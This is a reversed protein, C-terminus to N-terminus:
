WMRWGGRGLRGLTCNPSKLQDSSSSYSYQLRFSSPLRIFHPLSVELWGVPAQDFRAPVNVIPSPTLYSSIPTGLYPHSQERFTQCFIRVYVFSNRRTVSEVSFRTLILSKRQEVRTHIHLVAHHRRAQRGEVPSKAGRYEM